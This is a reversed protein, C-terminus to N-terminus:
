VFDLCFRDTWVAFGAAGDGDGDASIIVCLFLGGTYVSLNYDACTSDIGSMM